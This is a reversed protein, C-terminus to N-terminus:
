KLQYKLYYFILKKINYKQMLLIKYNVDNVFNKFLVTKANQKTSFGLWQWINDLDIVFDNKSHYNLYCYFSSIYLQQELETFNTKIKELLRNNYTNTLQSNPNTEIFNVINFSTDNSPISFSHPTECMKYM